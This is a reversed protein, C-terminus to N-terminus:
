DLDGAEVRELRLDRALRHGTLEQLSTPDKMGAAVLSLLDRTSLVGVVEGSGTVVPLHRFWKDFMINAADVLDTEPDITVPDSTMVDRLPTHKADQGEAVVRLVDRETVIGILSGGEMVLLSGTQQQWMKSSAETVTDDAADTLAAPTMIDSVKM